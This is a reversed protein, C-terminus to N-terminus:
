RTMAMENSEVSALFYSFSCAQLAHIGSSHIHVVLRVFAAVTVTICIRLISAFAVFLLSVIFSLCSTGCM